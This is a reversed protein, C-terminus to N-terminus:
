GVVANEIGDRDLGDTWFAAREVGMGNAKRGALTAARLISAADVSPGLGVLLVREPGRGRGLLFMTEDRNGKFDRARVVRGIAGGLARDLRALTRPLPKGSPLAVALLPVSLAAPDGARISLALAM